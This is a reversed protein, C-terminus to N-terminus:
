NEGVKSHFMRCHMKTFSTEHREQKYKDPKKGEPNVFFQM